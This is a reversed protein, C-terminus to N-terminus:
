IYIYTPTKSESFKNKPERDLVFLLNYIALLSLINMANPTQLGRWISLGENGKRKQLTPLVGVLRGWTSISLSLSLHLECLVWPIRIRNSDSGINRKWMCNVIRHQYPFKGDLDSWTTIIVATLRMSDVFYCWVIPSQSQGPEDSFRPASLFFQLQCPFWESLVM